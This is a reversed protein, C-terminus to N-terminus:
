ISKVEPPQMGGLTQEPCLSKPLEPGPRQDAGLKRATRLPSGVLLRLVDGRGVTQGM